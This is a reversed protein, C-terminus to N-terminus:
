GRYVTVLQCEDNNGKMELSIVRESRGLDTVVQRQARKVDLYGNYLEYLMRRGKRGM